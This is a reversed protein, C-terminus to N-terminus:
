ADKRTERESQLEYHELRLERALQRDFLRFFLDIEEGYQVLANALYELYADGLKTISYRRQSLERDFGDGRSVIMGEKEMQQLARYIARPRSAEFSPYTVKRALERGHSDGERLRVLLFPVMWNAPPVELVGENTVGFFSRVQQEFDPTTGSGDDLALADKVGEKSAAVEVLRQQENVRTVDIPILTSRPELSDIKVGIYETRDDGDVFFEDVKGIKEGAYDYVTYGAYRNEALLDNREEVTDKM